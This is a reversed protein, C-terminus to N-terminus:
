ASSRTHDAGAEPATFAEAPKLDTHSLITLYNQHPALSRLIPTIEFDAGEKAPSWMNKATGEATSGSSGHVMEIACLRTKSVAASQRIPTQAPLMSELFPLAITAGMGQLVTRRSLHKKTLFM